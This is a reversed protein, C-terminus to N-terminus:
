ADHVMSTSLAPLRAQTGDAIRLVIEAPPDISEVVGTYRMGNHEFTATRNRLVNLRQWNAAADQPTAQLTQDLIRALIAAAQTMTPPQDCEEPEIEPDLLLEAISTARGALEAPWDEPQQLVNIGIGVLLLDDAREILVGALKRMAGTAEVVDNPWRLGLGSDFKARNMAEACTQLAALGAVLSVHAPDHQRADLTLTAAVGKGRTAAWTRGLRGRGSTQSLTLIMLGPTARARAVNQTSDCEGLVEANTIFRRTSLGEALGESAAHADFPSPSPVQM